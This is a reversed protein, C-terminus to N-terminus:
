QLVVSTLICLFKVKNKNDRDMFKVRRQNWPWLCQMAGSSIIVLGSGSFIRCILRTGHRCEWENDLSNIM